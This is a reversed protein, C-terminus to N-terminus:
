IDFFLPLLDAVTVSSIMAATYKIYLKIVPPLENPFCGAELLPMVPLWDDGTEDEAPADPVNFTLKM